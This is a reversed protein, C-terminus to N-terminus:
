VRPMITAAPPGALKVRPLWDIDRETEIEVNCNVFVSLLVGARPNSSRLLTSSEASAVIPKRREAGGGSTVGVPLPVGCLPTVNTHARREGRSAAVHSARRPFPFSLPLSPSAARRPPIRSRSSSVSLAVHRAAHRIERPWSNGRWMRLIGSRHQRGQWPGGSVRVSHFLPRRAASAHNAIAFAFASGSESPPESDAERARLDGAQSDIPRGQRFPAASEEADKTRRRQRGRAIGDVDLGSRPAISSALPSEEPDSSGPDDAPSSFRPISSV